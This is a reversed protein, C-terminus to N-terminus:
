LKAEATSDRITLKTKFERIQRSTKKNKIRKLMLEMAARGMKYRELKITTLKPTVIRTLEINDAGIISMDDPIKIGNDKLTQLVGIALLDNSCVIATPMDKEKLIKKTIKSGGDIKHDGEFIKYDINKYKKIADIFSNVRVKSTEMEKPGSIFFVKKHKLSVLHEIAETFGTNFDTYLSDVGINKKSWGFLVFNVGTDKIEKIKPEDIQSSHIIIGDIKRGILADISKSGKEVDYDTNCLFINYGNKAAVEEVGQVIDPYFPNKIDSIVLGITHTKGTAISRALLNPTYKLEKMAKYVKKRTEPLVVRSKNIVHSVTTPSVGALKGIDNYNVM